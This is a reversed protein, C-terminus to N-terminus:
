IRYIIIYLVLINRICVIREIKDKPIDKIVFEDNLDSSLYINLNNIIENSFFDKLSRNENSFDIILKSIEDNSDKHFNIISPIELNNLKIINKNLDIENVIFYEPM